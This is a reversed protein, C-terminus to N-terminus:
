LIVMELYVYGVVEVGSGGGIFIGGVIQFVRLFDGLIVWMPLWCADGFENWSYEGRISPGACLATIPRTSRGRVTRVRRVAM